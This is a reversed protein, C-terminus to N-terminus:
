GAIGVHDPFRLRSMRIFNRNKDPEITKIFYFEREEADHLAISAGEIQFVIKIKSLVNRLMEDLDRIAHLSTTVEYILAMDRKTLSKKEM